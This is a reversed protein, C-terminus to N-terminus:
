PQIEHGDYAPRRHRGPAPDTGPCVFARTSNVFARAPGFGPAAGAIGTVV